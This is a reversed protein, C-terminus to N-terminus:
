DSVVWACTSALDRPVNEPVEEWEGVSFRAEDSRDRARGADRQKGFHVIPAGQRVGYASDHVSFALSPASAERASTAVLQDLERLDASRGVVDLEL